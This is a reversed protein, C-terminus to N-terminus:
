VARALRDYDITGATDTSKHYNPNRFLATDTLMIAPYGQEWFAWQDSWDVGKIFAPASIGIAAVKESQRFSQVVQRVLGRSGVNGVIGLFDGIPPYMLNIPFPYKQSGRLDSFYGITELSMM